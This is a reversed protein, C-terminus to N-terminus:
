ISIKDGRRANLYISKMGEGAQAPSPRKMGDRSM